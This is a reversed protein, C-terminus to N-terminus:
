KNLIDKNLTLIYKTLRSLIFIFKNFVIRTYREDIESSNIDCEYMDNIKSCKINEFDLKKIDYRQYHVTIADSNNFSKYIIREVQKDTDIFYLIMDKFNKYSNLRIHFSDSEISYLMKSNNYLLTYYSQLIKITNNRDYMFKIQNTYLNNVTHNFKDINSSITKNICSLALKTKIGSDLESINKKLVHFQNLSGLLIMYQFSLKNPDIYFEDKTYKM